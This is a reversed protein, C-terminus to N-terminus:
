MYNEKGDYLNFLIVACRIKTNPQQVATLWIIGAGTEDLSVDWGAFAHHSELTAVVKKQLDFFNKDRFFVLLAGMKTTISLYRDRLQTIGKSFESQGRWIKCEAVFDCTGNEGKVIIDAHGNLVRTESSANLGQGVMANVLQARLQREGRGSHLETDTQWAKKEELIVKVPDLHEIAERQSSEILSKKFDDDVKMQYIAQLIEVAKGTTADSGKLKIRVGDKLEIEVFRGGRGRLWEITLDCVFKLVAISFGLPLVAAIFEYYPFGPRPSAGIGVEIAQESLRAIIDKEGEPSPLYVKKASRAINPESNWFLFKYEFSVIKEVREADIDIEDTFLKEADDYNKLTSIQRLPADKNLLYCNKPFPAIANM